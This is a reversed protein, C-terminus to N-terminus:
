HHDILPGDQDTFIKWGAAEINRRALPTLSGALWLEKGTANPIEEAAEEIAAFVNAILESWVLHDLPSHFVLMGDVTQALGLTRVPIDRDFPIFQLLPVQTKHYAAYMQAMRQRYFAVDGDTTTIAFKIFLDRNTVGALDELAFVLDTQQRPTFVANDIFLEALDEAIGMDRLKKENMIRLDSPPTSRYVENMLRTGGTVTTAIGAAGPVLSMLGAVTLGGAYGSWAMDDLEEQLVPNNSYVDVGFDYAYERKTKSFGIASKWRADEAESRNSGFLNEGVRQFAKGVGSIAGASTKLPSTVFSKAGQLVDGTAEKFSERYTKTSSIEAMLELAQIERIRKQLTASTIATFTGFDSDITYRNLYGDNVVEERVRHHPGTLLKAPLIQSAKLVPPQEYPPTAAAAGPGVLSLTATIIVVTLHAKTASCHNM